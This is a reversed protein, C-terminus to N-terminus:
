NIGFLARVDYKLEKAKPTLMDDEELGYQNLLFILHEKLEATYKVQDFVVMEETMGSPYRITYVAFDDCVSTRFFPYYVTEYVHKDITVKM